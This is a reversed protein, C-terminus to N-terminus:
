AFMEDTCAEASLMTGIMVPLNRLRGESWCSPLAPLATPRKRAFIRPAPVTERPIVRQVSMPIEEVKAYSWLLEGTAPYHVCAVTM